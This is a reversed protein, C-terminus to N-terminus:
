YYEINVIGREVGSAILRPQDPTRPSANSSPQEEM